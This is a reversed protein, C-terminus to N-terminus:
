VGLHCLIVRKYLLLFFFIEGKLGSNVEKTLCRQESKLIIGKSICSM